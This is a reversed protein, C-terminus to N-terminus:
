LLVYLDNAQGNQRARVISNHRADQLQKAFFIHRVNEDYDASDDGVFIGGLELLEADGLHELRASRELFDNM